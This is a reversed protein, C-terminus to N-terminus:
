RHDARAARRATQGCCRSAAEAAREGLRLGRNRQSEGPRYGEFFDEYTYAPHFQVLQVNEPKGGVLHSALEQALYTKGTGPPGYFILQPRDRLLEVCEQLWDLAHPLCLKEALEETVDPLRFERDPVPQEPEEGLMHELDGIFETLEILEADPNGLRASIEDPLDGYDVPSDPNRWSVTRQLNARNDISAVFASQGILVGLYVDTGDNTMLIDGDRMRSLFAYYDATMRAREQVTAHAYDSDVAARVLDQPSNSPLERLRSAPLSCLGQPLWLDRVLNAGQVSSGRVLWARRPSEGLIGDGVLQRLDIGPVRKGPDARGFVMAVGDATLLGTWEAREEESLALEDPLGGDADLTRFWGEPRTGQLWQVLRASQLGCQEALDSAASWTEEPIAEIFRAVMEFRARNQDWDRYLEGLREYFSIPDTLEALASRGVPTLYWRGGSKRIWGAKVLNISYFDFNRYATTTGASANSWESELNPLQQVVATWLDQGRMGEPHKALIRAGALLTQATIEWTATM